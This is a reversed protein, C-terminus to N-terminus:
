PPAGAPKRERRRLLPLSLSVAGAVLDVAVLVIRSAGALVIAHAEGLRPTLLAVIVAERVGVGGPAFVVLLGALWALAFVGIYAPLQRAPVAFLARGTLWFALGYVGWVLLYLMGAAPAARFAASLTVGDVRSRSSLWACLRRTPDAGWRAAVVGVTCLGVIGAIAILAGQLPLVLLGLAAASLASLTVEAILSVLAAQIPVGRGRALGVRGAYQWVSGPLYKGLQSAFFLTVWSFSAPVGLRRLLYPWVLGYAAVAVASAAVALAFVGGDVSSFDVPHRSWLQWLRLALLVVLAAALLRGAVRVASRRGLRRMVDVSVVSATFRLRGGATGEGEPSRM